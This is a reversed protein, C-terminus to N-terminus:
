GDMETSYPVGERLYLAIGTEQTGRNRNGTYRLEQKRHVEGMMLLVRATDFSKVNVDICICNRQQTPHWLIHLVLPHFNLVRYASIDAKIDDEQLFASELLM